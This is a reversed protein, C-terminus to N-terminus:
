DGLIQRRLKIKTSEITKEKAIIGFKKELMDLYSPNTHYKMWANDRFALIQESTLYKSPLNQAYYSHQSFGSYTEPLKWNNEIAQKYLQSGAYCMASYFNAGETNMNIALDLTEQMSEMDDEPLGFIFNGMVNIGHDRISKVVSQIDTNEFRGKYVDKRVRKNSSEIGLALWNVGAKKLPELYEPKTIDM